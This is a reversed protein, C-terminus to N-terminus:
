GCALRAPADALPDAGLLRPLSNAVALRVGEDTYYNGNVMCTHLLVTRFAEFLAPDPPTREHWFRSLPGESTLGPLDFIARGLAITAAGRQLATLGVTSNVVIVGQAHDILADLDGGDIFIVRAEVGLSRAKRRILRRYDIWGNDLPHNKIVLAAAAPAHAAFDDLVAEIAAPLTKFASHVRIQSDSDLQLPFLFYPATGACLRAVTDRAEAQRWKLTALRRCWTAYEAWIPYPRHTRYHPYRLRQTYNAIQWQFDFLIRNRMGAGVPAGTSFPPLRRATARYWDPDDPLRSWGNVGGRELTLWNPRLYGEECVHVVIGRAAAAAIAPRHVPRWDGFLVIDTTGARDYHRAVFDPFAEPRERFDTARWDGWFRRDGGCVNVRAVEHGAEALAQGLRLFYWSANGQLFLFRRSM